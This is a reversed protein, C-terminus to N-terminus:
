SIIATGVEGQGNRRQERIERSYVHVCLTKDAAGEGADWIGAAFLETLEQDCQAAWGRPWVSAAAATDGGGDKRTDQEEAISRRSEEKQLMQM